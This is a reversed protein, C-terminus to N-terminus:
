KDKKDDSTESLAKCCSIMSAIGFLWAWIRYPCHPRVINTGYGGAAYPTEDYSGNLIVLMVTFAFLSLTFIWWTEKKNKM